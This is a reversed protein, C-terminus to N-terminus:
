PVFIKYANRTNRVIETYRQRRRRRSKITMVVVISLIIQPAGKQEDHLIRWGRIIEARKLWFIRLRINYVRLPSTTGHMYLVAPLIIIEYIKITLNTAPFHFSFIFQSSYNGSNGTKNDTKMFSCM